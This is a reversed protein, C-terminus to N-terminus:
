LHVDEVLKKTNDLAAEAKGTSAKNYINCIIRGTIQSGGQDPFQYHRRGLEKENM